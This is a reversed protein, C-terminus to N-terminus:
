APPPQHQPCYHRKVKKDGHEVEVEQWGPPLPPMSQGKRPEPTGMSKECNPDDCYMVILGLPDDIFSM